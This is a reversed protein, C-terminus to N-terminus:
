LSRPLKHEIKCKFKWERRKGRLSLFCLSRWLHTAFSKSHSNIWTSPTVGFSLGIMLGGLSFLSGFGSEERSSMVQHQDNDWPQALKWVDSKAGWCNGPEAVGAVVIHLTHHYHSSILLNTRFTYGATIRWCISVSISFGVMQLYNFGHKKWIRTLNSSSIQCIAIWATGGTGSGWMHLAFYKAVQWIIDVYKLPFIILYSGFKHFFVSIGHYSQYTVIHNPPYSKLSNESQTNDMGTVQAWIIM